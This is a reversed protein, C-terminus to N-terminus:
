YARAFVLRTGYASPNGCRICAGAEEDGSTPICRPTAATQTKIDDECAPEGCHLAYAFGVEVQKAFTEWSDVAASRQDRFARAREVLLHHYADLLGPVAAV